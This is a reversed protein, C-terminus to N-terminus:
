SSNRGAAGGASPLISASDPVDERIWLLDIRSGERRVLATSRLDAGRYQIRGRVHFFRSGVAIRGAGGHPRFGPLRAEFDALDRFHRLNRSEVLQRAQALPLDDFRASLVEAAATNVNLPSAVPLITTFPRIRAFTSREGPDDFQLEDLSSLAVWAHGVARPQLQAQIRLAISAAYRSDAGVNEMLRSLAAVEAAVPGEAGVVNRLNFRAQADEVRGSLWAPVDNASEIRTPALPVAWPEGAHDAATTRADEALVARIWDVAGFLIWRAQARSRAHEVEAALVSQRVFAGTVLLVALTAVLMAMLVASGRERDPSTRMKM